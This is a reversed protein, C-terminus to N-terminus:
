FVYMRSATKKSMKLLKLVNKVEKKKLDFLEGFVYPPLLTFPMLAGTHQIKCFGFYFSKKVPIHVSFHSLVIYHSTTRSSKSIQNVAIACSGYSDNM